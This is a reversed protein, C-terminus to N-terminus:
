ILAARLEPGASLQSVDPAPVNMQRGERYCTHRGAPLLDGNTEAYVLLGLAIQKLNNACSM